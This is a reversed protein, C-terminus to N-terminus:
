VVVLEIEVKDISRTRQLNDVTDNYAPGADADAAANDVAVVVDVCLPDPLDPNL